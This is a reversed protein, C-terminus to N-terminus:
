NNNFLKYMENIFVWICQLLNFADDNHYIADLPLSLNHSHFINARWVGIDNISNMININM